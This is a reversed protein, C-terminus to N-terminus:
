RTRTTRSPASLVGDLVLCCENEEAEAPVRHARYGRNKQLPSQLGSATDRVFLLLALLVCEITCPTLPNEDDGWM